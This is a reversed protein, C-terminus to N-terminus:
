GPRGRELLDHETNRIRAGLYVFFEVLEISKGGVSVIQDPCEINEVLYKTKSENMRLGVTMAVEVVGRLLEEAEKVTDTM